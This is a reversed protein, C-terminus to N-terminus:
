REIRGAQAQRVHYAVHSAWKARSESARNEGWKMDVTCDHGCTCEYYMDEGLELNKGPLDAVFQHAQRVLHELDDAAVTVLNATIM